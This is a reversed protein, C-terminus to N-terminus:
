GTAEAPLQEYPRLLAAVDVPEGAGPPAHLWLELQRLLSGGEPDRRLAVIAAAATQGQLGLKARWFGLLMRELEARREPQLRGAIADEVMPRLREALTPPRVAGAAVQRKKRGVFLIALLGLLWLGGSTWLLTRYGGLRPAAGPALENPEVKDAPRVAVVDVPLEPLDATATGDKRRLLSRLDYRGPELGLFEIQYRNATGHPRVEVVRVIMKSAVDGPVAELETGPLVVDTLRGTMGVTPRKLEAADAVQAGASQAVALALLLLLTRM